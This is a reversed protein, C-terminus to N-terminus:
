LVSNLPGAFIAMGKQTVPGFSAFRHNSLIAIGAETLCHGVGKVPLLWLWSISIEVRLTETGLYLIYGPGVHMGM